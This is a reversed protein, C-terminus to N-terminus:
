IVWIPISSDTYSALLLELSSGGGGEHSIWFWWLDFRVEPLESSEWPLFFDMVSLISVSFVYLSDFKFMEFNARSNSLANEIDPHQNFATNNLRKLVCILIALINISKCFHVMVFKIKWNQERNTKCIFKGKDNTLFGYICKWVRGRTISTFLPSKKM